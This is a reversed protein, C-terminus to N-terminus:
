ATSYETTDALSETFAERPSIIRGALQVMLPCGVPRRGIMLGVYGPEMDGMPYNAMGVLNVDGCM